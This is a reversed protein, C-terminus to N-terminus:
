AARSRQCRRSRCRASDRCGAAASARSLLRRGCGVRDARGDHRLIRGGRDGDRGAAHRGCRRGARPAVGTRRRAAAAYQRRALDDVAARVRASALVIRRFRGCCRSPARSCSSWRARTTDGASSCCRRWSRAPWSSCAHWAWVRDAPHADDHRVLCRGARAGRRSRPSRAVGLRRDCRSTGAHSWGEDIDIRGRRAASRLADVLQDLLTPLSTWTESWFTRRSARGGTLAVARGLSPLARVTTAAASAALDSPAAVHGRIRGRLRALPQILHLAAVLLRDRLRARRSFGGAVRVARLARGVDPSGRQRSHLGCARRRSVASRAPRGGADADLVLVLWGASAPLFTLGSAGVNYVSPFAATGWVGANIRTGWLSARVAAPQLHPRAVAHRGDLFKEPHHAM